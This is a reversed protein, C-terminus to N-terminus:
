LKSKVFQAAESPYKNGYALHASTIAFGGTTCVGDGSDCWDRARGVFNDPIKPRSFGSVSRGAQTGAAAASFPDYYPNGFLIIAAIKGDYASIGSDRLATVIVMAGQSYGALVYKQNPCRASQSRLRSIVDAAGVSPGTGFNFSAPYVVNYVNQNFPSIQRSIENFIPRMGTPNTQSETTGRAAIIEISPCTSTGVQTGGTGSPPLTPISGGTGGTQTPTPATTTTTPRPWSWWFQPQPMPAAAAFTALLAATFITSVRMNVAM